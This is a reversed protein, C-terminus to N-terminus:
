LVTKIDMTEEKDDYVSMFDYDEDYPEMEGEIYPDASLAAKVTKRVFYVILSTLAVHWAFILGVTLRVADENQWQRGSVCLTFGVQICWIGQVMTCGCRIWRIRQMQPLFTEGLIVMATALTLLLQPEYMARDTGVPFKCVHDKLATFHCLFTAALCLRSIFRWASPTWWRDAAIRAFSYPILPGWVMWVNWRNQHGSSRSLGSRLLEIFLVLGTFCLVAVAELSSREFCTDMVNNRCSSDCDRSFERYCRSFTWGIGLFFLFLGLVLFDSWNTLNTEM